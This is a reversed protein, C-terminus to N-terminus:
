NEENSYKMFPLYEEIKFMADEKHFDGMGAGM